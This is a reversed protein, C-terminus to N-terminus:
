EIVIGDAALELLEGDFRGSISIRWAESPNVAITIRKDIVVTSQLEVYNTLIVTDGEHAPEIAARLGVEGPGAVVPAGGATKSVFLLATLFSRGGGFGSSGLGVCKNSAFIPRATM